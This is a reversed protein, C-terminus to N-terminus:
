SIKTVDSLAMEGIAVADFMQQWYGRTSEKKLFSRLFWHRRVMAEALNRRTRRGECFRKKVETPVYRRILVKRQRGRRVLASILKGLLPSLRRQAYFLEMIVLVEPQHLEILEDLFAEARALLNQETKRGALTKVGFKILDDGEFFALGLHKTGPSIALIRQTSSTHM